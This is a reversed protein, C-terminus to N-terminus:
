SYPLAQPFPSSPSAARPTQTQCRSLQVTVASLHGPRLFLNVAYCSDDRRDVDLAPRLRELARYPQLRAIVQPVQHLLYRYVGCKDVYVDLDLLLREAPRQGHLGTTTPTGRWPYLTTPTATSGGTTVTNPGSAYM